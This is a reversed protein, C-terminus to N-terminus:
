DEESTRECVCGHVWCGRVGCEGPPGLCGLAAAQALLQLATTAALYALGWWVWAPATPFGRAALTAQTHTYAAAASM